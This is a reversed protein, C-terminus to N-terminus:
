NIETAQNHYWAREVIENLDKVSFYRGYHDSLLEAFEAADGAQLIYRKVVGAAIAVPKNYRKTQSHRVGMGYATAARNQERKLESASLKRTIVEGHLSRRGRAQTANILLESFDCVPKAKRERTTAAESNQMLTAFDVAM